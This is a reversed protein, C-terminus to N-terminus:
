HIRQRVISLEVQADPNDPKCAPCRKTFTLIVNYVGTALRKDLRRALPKTLFKRLTDEAVPYTKGCATCRFFFWNPPPITTHIM